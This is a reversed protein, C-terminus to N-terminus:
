ILADRGARNRLGDQSVRRYPLVLSVPGRGQYLPELPSGDYSILHKLASIEHPEGKAIRQNSESRESLLIYPM